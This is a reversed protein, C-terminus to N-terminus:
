VFESLIKETDFPTVDGDLAFVTDAEERTTVLSGRSEGHLTFLDFLNPARRTVLAETVLALNSRNGAVNNVRRTNSLINMDAWIVERNELDLILPIGQTSDSTIDIKNLVTKPEYIEGSNADLRGMFGAFLEPIESFKQGTYSHITMYVYKHGARLAMAINIDIFESAGNPASTIDGSHYGGVERLNYYSITGTNEFESNMLGASLDIDVRGGYGNTETDKWHTFMRVVDGEPLKMRTGRALTRLSASASRQGFPVIYGKLEPDVFVKGLSDSEKFLTKLAENCATVVRATVIASLAARKEEIVQIKSLNGKPFFSRYQGNPNSRSLFHSRTQILVTASVKDAVKEFYDVVEHATKDNGRVLEDLRRAFIGPRSSLLKAAEVFASDKILRETKSNFTEFPLDNRVVNFAEAAKPFRSAYEGPHIIEGLRKWEMSYRLMDETIAGANDLLRLILRREAKKFKRFKTKTALSVDGDSLAVALRLVDTATKFQLATAPPLIGIADIVQKSIFALNEKNPIDSPISLQNWESSKVYETIDDKDQQSFSSKSSMISLFLGNLDQISGLEIITLPRKHNLAPRDAKEYVPLIRLGVSDGLYHLLSNIYLEAANAAMVQSPFNPYMPAYSVNAGLMAKLTSTIENSFLIVDETSSTLLNVLVDKSFTYGLAEINKVATAMIALDALGASTKLPIAKASRRLYISNISM